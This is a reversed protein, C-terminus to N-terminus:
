TDGVIDVCIQEAVNFSGMYQHCDSLFQENHKPVIETYRSCFLSKMIDNLDSMEYEMKLLEGTKVNFLKFTKNNSKNKINWLWAYIALQLMHDTSLKTCCKLEWVTNETIIDARATFRFQKNDIFEKTFEDIQTHSEEDSAHIIYEEIKPCINQCDPGIIERFQTKCADVIEDSLWDYEDEGIQKLKFYLSEQIAQNINAMFLYDRVSTIHEPLKEIMECLFDKNREKINEMNMDILEYLISDKTKDIQTGAWVSRLLDYYICPIAIGNLDSIEEYFGTKTQILSPMDILYHEPKEIVFIKELISCIDQYSEEPIFKILDTPTTKITTQLDREEGVTFFTKHQGRFRIYPQEKMEIHSMKIFDIPRDDPNTDNEIVYLGTQARTCAVYITNPCIDRPLNRAYFKFYSHDFGVVFVYKRQRGKVCHFTSFVVKGDIVRQDIDSSELMPVHCPINKEVLMNELKRINSREGKVSPGLVFIDNAKVGSEFLRIIEAYVIKESNYRSNRIYQVPESDRCSNMREEGLLVNNVFHRMQNTIRYSMKMTCMEFNDTKLLPHKYWVCDAFTLYRIDSGKFEYLGQMYDGLILLQVPSGMDFLFKCILQFYLFTMDQCEDLVLMDIKPIKRNPKLKNMIIKRIESDVHAKETYYCVALSHFTHVSLNELKADEIKERVEFKLSKNYTMQLIQTDTLEKAISLILTTKGTGAVADVVVNVGTQVVDLIHQQEESLIM